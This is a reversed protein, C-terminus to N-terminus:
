ELLYSWTASEYIGQEPIDFYAMWIRWIKAWEPDSSERMEVPLGLRQADEASVLASHAQPEEILAPILTALLLQLQEPSRSPNGALAQRLQHQTHAIADRAEQATYATGNALAAVHFESVEHAVTCVREAYGFAALVAKAGMYGNTPVWIQPDIPGLDSVPGMVIRHAGLAFLTGASKAEMPILITLERCHAQAQRVLRIAAEGDGGDTNLMIHLDTAPEVDQLIEELLVVSVSSLNDILVILRCDQAHEYEAILAQREAVLDREPEFEEDDSTNQEEPEPEVRNM